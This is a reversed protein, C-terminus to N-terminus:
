IRYAIQKPRFAIKALRRPNPDYAAKNNNKEKDTYVTGGLIAKDKDSESELPKDELEELDFDRRAGFQITNGFANRMEAEDHILSTRSLPEALGEDCVYKVYNDDYFPQYFTTLKTFIRYRTKDCKFGMYKKGDIYEPAIFITCDLNENILGSEGIMSSSLNKVVNHKNVRRSDELIRVGERNFQSATIVPIDKYLAFNRFDNIVNGIDIRPEGTKDVPRIRKIYDQILAIVEYGEDELDEVFKYLYNCDVSNIPKYKVVIDIPSSVSVGLQASILQKADAKDFNKLPEPSCAINFLTEFVQKTNNEMTLVAVCPIKTKDRCVYDKNYNKIQVAMNLLTTTKGEGPLGFFSYVKGGGFGGALVGNLAQIGTKLLYCPREMDSYIDELTNNFNSFDITTNNTDKDVDNRRFTTQMESVKEKIDNVYKIKDTYDSSSYGTCLNGLDLISNNIFLVNACTAITGEVWDVDDNSLEPFGNPDLSEFQNGMIGYVERVVLARNTINNDLKVELVKKCFRYRIICEVNNEFMAETISNLVNRLTVLYNRHINTNGSLCYASFTNMVTIDFNFKATPQEIHRKSSFRRRREELTSM